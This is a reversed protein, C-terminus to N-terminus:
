ITFLSLGIADCLESGACAQESITVRIRFYLKRVGSPGKLLVSTFVSSTHFSAHVHKNIQYVHWYIVLSFGDYLIISLYFHQLQSDLSM